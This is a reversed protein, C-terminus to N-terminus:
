SDSAKDEILNYHIENMNLLRKRNVSIKEIFRRMYFTSILNSKAAFASGRREHKELYKRGFIESTQAQTLLYNEDYPTDTEPPTKHLCEAEISKQSLTRSIQPITIM